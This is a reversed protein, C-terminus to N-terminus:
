RKEKFFNTLLEKYESVESTDYKLLARGDVIQYNTELLYYVNRIRAENIAGECMMCPRLTVYLDCESLRWDGVAKSALEIATIEAHKIACKKSEKENRAKAIIKSDFVVVAGVPVDNTKLAKLAEEMAIEMYKIMDDGALIFSM